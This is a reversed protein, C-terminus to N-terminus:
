LPTLLFEDRIEPSLFSWLERCILEDCFSSSAHINAHVSLWVVLKLYVNTWPFTYRLHKYYFRTLKWQQEEIETKLQPNMRRIETLRNCIKESLEIPLKGWVSDM